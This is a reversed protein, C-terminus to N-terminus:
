WILVCLHFIRYDEGVIASTMLILVTLFLQLVSGLSIPLVSLSVPSFPVGLVCVCLSVAAQLRRQTTFSVSFYSNWFSSIFIILPMFLDVSPFYSFLDATNLKSILACSLPVCLLSCCLSLVAPNKLWGAKYHLFLYTNLSIFGIGSLEGAICLLRCLQQGHRM